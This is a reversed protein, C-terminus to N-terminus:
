LSYNSIATEKDYSRLRKPPARMTDDLKERRSTSSPITELYGSEGDKDFSSKGGRVTM